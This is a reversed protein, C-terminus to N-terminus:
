CDYKNKLWDDENMLLQRWDNFTMKIWYCDDENMFLRRVKNVTTKM